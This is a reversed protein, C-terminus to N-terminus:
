PEILFLTNLPRAIREYLKHARTGVKAGVIVGRCERKKAVRKARRLLKLGMGSRRAQEDCFIADVCLMRVHAFHQLPSVIAILFGHLNGKDDAVGVVELVGNAQMADYAQSSFKPQGFEPHASAERYEDILQDFDPHSILEGFSLEVLEM